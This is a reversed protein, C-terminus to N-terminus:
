ADAIMVATSKVVVKVAKGPELGLSEASEATIISVMEEGGDLTVVVEAMIGKTEKRVSKVTGPLQNRASMSM